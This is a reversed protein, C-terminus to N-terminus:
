EAIRFVENRLRYVFRYGSVGDVEITEGIAQFGCASLFLQGDLNDERVAFTIRNRRDMQLKGTLKAVMQTGVKRRWVGPHVAFNLVDIWRRGLEYVMYGLIREDYEAVLGVVNRSRLERAFGDEDWPDPFCGDEIGLVEPMDRRIMWRIHVNL